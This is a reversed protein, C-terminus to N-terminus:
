LPFPLGREFGRKIPKCSTATDLAPGADCRDVTTGSGAGPDPNPLGGNLFDNGQDSTLQDPKGGHTFENECLIVDAKANDAVSRSKACAARYNDGYFVDACSNAPHCTAAADGGDAGQVADRGGGSATGTKTYNDGVQLDQGPGGDVHDDGGGSAVGSVTYSDGVVLDDDSAGALHTDGAGGTADGGGVSASDGIVVDRGAGATLNKESSGGRADGTAYNDGVIFDRGNAGGVFDRGTAGSENGRPNANDGVALDDGNGSHLEDNGPGGVVTDDGGIAKVYDDGAGGCIVHGSHDGTAVKITDNGGRAVVVAGPKAVITDAHDTGVQTASKGFCQPRERASGISTLALAIFGALVLTFPIITSVIRRRM